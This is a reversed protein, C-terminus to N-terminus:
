TVPGPHGHRVKCTCGNLLRSQLGTHSATSGRRQLLGKPEAGRSEESLGSSTANAPAPARLGRSRTSSLSQTTCRTSPATTLVTNVCPRQKTGDLPCSLRRALPCLAGTQAHLDYRFPHNSHKGGWTKHVRLPQQHERAPFLAKFCVEHPGPTEGRGGAARVSRGGGRAVAGGSGAGGCGRVPGQVQAGRVRGVLVRSAECGEQVRATGASAGPHRTSRPGVGAGWARSVVRGGVACRYLLGPARRTGAVRHVAWLPAPSAVPPDPVPAPRLRSSFPAVWMVSTRTPPQMRLRVAPRLLLLLHPM